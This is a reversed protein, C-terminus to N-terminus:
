FRVSVEGTSIHSITGDSVEVILQCKDDIGLVKANIENNPSVLVVDRNKLISRTKYEELFDLAEINNYFDCLSNLINATIKNKDIDNKDFVSGAINKIDDPFDSTTVNIGIGVILFDLETSNRKFEVETLIGSIKKDNMFIDNVWKIGLNKAGENELARCVCVAAAATILQAKSADFSPRFLISMYIGSNEPSYFSRGLRGRGSTQHKAILVSGDPEDNRAMNKLETNTSGISDLVKIDLKHNLHINIEKQSLENAM